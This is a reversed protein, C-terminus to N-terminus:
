KQADLAARKALAETFQTRARELFAPDVQSLDTITREAHLARREEPSMMELETMPVFGPVEM